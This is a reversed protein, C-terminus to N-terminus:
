TDMIDDLGKLRHKFSYGRLIIGLLKMYQTIPGKNIDIYTPHLVVGDFVSVVRIGM